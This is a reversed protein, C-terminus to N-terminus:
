CQLYPPETDLVTYYDMDQHEFYLRETSRQAIVTHQPPMTRVKTVCPATGTTRNHQAQHRESM